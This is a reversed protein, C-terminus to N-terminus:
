NSKNDRVVIVRNASKVVRSLVYRRVARCTIRSVSTEANAAGLVSSIFVIGPNLCESSFEHCLDSASPRKSPEFNLMRLVFSSLNDKTRQEYTTHDLQIPISRKHFRHEVVEMDYSFLPKGSAMEYLICGMSWIDVTHTFKRERLLEPARYGETGGAGTTVQPNESTVPRALGFDAVKWTSSKYLVLFLCFNM